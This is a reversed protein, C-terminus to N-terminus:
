VVVKREVKRGFKLINLWEKRAKGLGHKGGSKRWSASV